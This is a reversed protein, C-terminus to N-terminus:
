WHCRFHNACYGKCSFSSPAAQGGKVLSLHKRVCNIEHIDAGCGLLIENTKQKDAFSIVAVPQSWLASGGGSILAIVLDNSTAKGIMDLASSCSAVGAEDPFPHRTKGAAIQMSSLNNGAILNMRDVAAQEEGFELSM